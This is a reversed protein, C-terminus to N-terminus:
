GWGKRLLTAKINQRGFKIAEDKSDTLIDIKNGKIYGGKDMAIVKETKGNGYHLRLVSGMPIYSPDTAVVRMGKYFETNKVDYGTATIGSCGGYQVGDIVMPSCNATYKTANLTLTKSELEKEIKNVKEELLKIEKDKEELDKNKQELEERHRDAEEDLEQLVEDM